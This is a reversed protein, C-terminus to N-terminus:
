KSMQVQLRRFARGRYAGLGFKFPGILFYIMGAAGPAFAGGFTALALSLLGIAALGLNDVIDLRADLVEPPTLGLEDRKRWAHLYLLAFLGFVAIVAVSYIQMLHPAQSSNIIPEVSGDAQTITLPTNTLEALLLKFVFKLPYVYFLVVFLLLGTLGITTTDELGYRRFFTFHRWWVQFLLAFCIAFAPFERMANTLESYTRPVELSVVLLTVAFAFVADSFGELRSV